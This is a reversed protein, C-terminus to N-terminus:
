NKVSDFCICPYIQKSGFPLDPSYVTKDLGLELDGPSQQPTRLPLHAWKLAWSGPLFTVCGALNHILFSVICPIDMRVFVSDFEAHEVCPTYGSYLVRFFFLLWVIRVCSNTCPSPLFWQGHQGHNSEHWGKLQFKDCRSVLPYWLAGPEVWGLQCSFSNLQNKNSPVSM